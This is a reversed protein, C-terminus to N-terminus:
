FRYGTQIAIFPQVGLTSQRPYSPRLNSYPWGLYASAPVGTAISAAIVPAITYYYLPTRLPIRPSLPRAYAVTAWQALILIFLAILKKSLSSKM